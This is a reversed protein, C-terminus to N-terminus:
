RVRRAERVQLEIVAPFEGRAPHRIVVLVGEVVIPQLRITGAHAAVDSMRALAGIVLADAEVRIDHFPLANIDILRGPQEVEERMLDILTTGGAIYRGGAAGAELADAEDRATQFAFPKM